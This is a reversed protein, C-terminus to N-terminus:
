ARQRALNSQYTDVATDSLLYIMNYAVVLVLRGSEDLWYDTPLTATGTRTFSRLKHGAAFAERSSFWLSQDRKLV